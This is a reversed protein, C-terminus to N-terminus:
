RAACSLIYEATMEPQGVLIAHDGSREAVRWGLARARDHMGPKMVTKSVALYDVDTGLTEAGAEIPTVVAALPMDSLHALFWAEREAPMEHPDDKAMARQQEHVGSGAPLEGRALGAQMAAAQEAPMYGMAVGVAEGSHVLVADLMVVRAIQAGARQKVGPLITGAYSHGVLVANSVDEYHLVQVIDEIHTPPTVERRLLHVREGFGTFTPTLVRHGQRELLPAVFRWVWGGMGGGHCLVFDTM